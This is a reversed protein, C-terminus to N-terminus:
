KQTDAAPLSALIDAAIKQYGTSNLHLGDITMDPLLNGDVGAIAPNLNVFRAHHEVCLKELQLNFDGIKRNVALGAQDIASVHMPMVSLVIIEVPHLTTQTTVLLEQYRQISAEVSDVQSLNNFGCMLIVAEPIRDGIGSVLNRVDEIKARSLGCNRMAFAGDFIQYWDGTEIHSDGALIILPRHDRWPLAFDAKKLAILTDWNEQQVAPLKLYFHELLKPTIIGALVLALLWGSWCIYWKM